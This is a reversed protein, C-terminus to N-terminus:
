GSDRYYLIDVYRQHRRALEAQGTAKYLAVLHEQLAPDFPSLDAAARFAALAAADRDQALYLEGLLRQNASSEPYYGLNEELLAIAEDPRGLAGLVEATRLTLLPGPPEDTPAAARLYKLAAEYHEREAMLEGLRTLNALDKRRALVPDADYAEATGDLDTINAAVKAGVLRQQGLWARWAAEFAPFDGGNAVQAVAERADTGERVLRIVRQLADRGRSIQLYEMMTAVQAYALGAMDASPLLAMSPHMQEFTVWQGTQLAGALLGQSRVPLVFTDTRWLTELNKAIGEQLWIPARDRANYSVVRHIWEHVVTNKWDYGASLVRPSTVLLRNWKSIAVVGTTRIAEEPLGSATMFSQGDPYLELLVKGPVDGGLRPAIRARAANIAEAAEDVLVREIGPHHMVVVDGVQTRVLGTHIDATAVYFALEAELGKRISAAASAEEGVDAGRPLQGALARPDIREARPVVGRLREAAQAFEGEHFLVRAELLDREPGADAPLDELVERACPVDTWDLCTFGDRVDAAAAAASWLLLLSSVFWSRM